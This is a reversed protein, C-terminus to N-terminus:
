GELEATYFDRDYMSTYDFENNGGYHFDSLGENWPENSFMSDKAITDSRKLDPAILDDALVNSEKRRSFEEVSLPFLNIDFEESDEAERDNVAGCKYLVVESIAHGRHEKSIHDLYLEMGHMVPTSNGLYVCFLCQYSYQEQKVTKQQVHSKALFPWRFKLGKANDVWVKDYILQPNYHGAYACKSASCALYYVNSQASYMYDKCKNLGKRDGNQLKWAGKCFGLYNNEASPHPVAVSASHGSPPIVSGTNSFTRTMNSSM